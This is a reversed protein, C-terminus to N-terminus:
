HAVNAKAKAIPNHQALRRLMIRLAANVRMVGPGSSRQLNILALEMLDHIGGDGVLLTGDM